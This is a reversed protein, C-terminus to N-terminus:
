LATALKASHHLNDFGPLLVAMPLRWSLDKMHYTVRPWAALLSRDYSTPLNSSCVVLDAGFAHGLVTCILWAKHPDTFFLPTKQSTTMTM